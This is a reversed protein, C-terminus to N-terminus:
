RVARIMWARSDFVVGDDTEHAEIVRRLVDLARRADDVDLDQLLGRVVGIGEVFTHADDGDPGLQLHERQSQIVGACRHCRALDRLSLASGPPVTSGTLLRPLWSTM